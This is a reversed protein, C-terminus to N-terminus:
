ILKALRAREKTSGVGVGFKRDLLNLQDQASRTSREASRKTAGEKRDEVNKLNNKRTPM